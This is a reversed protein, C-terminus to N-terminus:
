APQEGHSLQPVAPAASGRAPAASAQGTAQEARARRVLLYMYGSFTGLIAFPMSLMFLISWFFGGIIDGQSEDHNALAVKCMPCADAAATLILVLALAASLTLARMLLQRLKMFRTM